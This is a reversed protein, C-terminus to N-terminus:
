QAILKVPTGFKTLINNLVAKTVLDHPKKWKVRKFGFGTYIITLAATRVAFFVCSMMAFILQNIRDFSVIATRLSSDYSVSVFHLSISQQLLHSTNYGSPKRFTLITTTSGWKGKQTWYTIFASYGILLQHVNYGFQHCFFTTQTSNTVTASTCLQQLM